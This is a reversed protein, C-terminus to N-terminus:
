KKLVSILTMDLMLIKLFEVKSDNKILPDLQSKGVDICYVKKAGNKLLAHTPRQQLGLMLANKEM